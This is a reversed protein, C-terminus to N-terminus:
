TFQLFDDGRPRTAQVPVVPGDSMAVHFSAVREIANEQQVAGKLHVDAKPGCAPEAGHSRLELKDKADGTLRLGRSRGARVFHDTQSPKIRQVNATTNRPMSQKM